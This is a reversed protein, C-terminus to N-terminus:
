ALTITRGRRPDPRLTVPDPLTLDRRLGALNLARKLGEQVRGAVNLVRGVHQGVVALARGKLAPRTETGIRRAVDEHSAAYVARTM